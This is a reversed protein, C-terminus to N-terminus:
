SVESVVGDAIHLKRHGEAAVDPEHTIVVITTGDDNLDRLLALIGETNTSDLNGTPEDCLLLSPSGMLARAMAVRQSEGGSLTATKAHLRHLLGVREACEEARRAREARDRTRYLGGLQINQAVDRHRILHFSQFVFGIRHARLAALEAEPLDDVLQGDFRYSGSTATDLLGLVNLLTSKGSGSPGTITIYQGAEVSFTCDRLAKVDPPYTM